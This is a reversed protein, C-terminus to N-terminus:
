GTGLQAGSQSAFARAFSRPIGRDNPYATVRRITQKAVLLARVLFRTVPCSPIPPGFRRAQSQEM